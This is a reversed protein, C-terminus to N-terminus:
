QRDFFTKLFNQFFKYSDFVNHCVNKRGQIKETFNITEFNFFMKSFTKVYFIRYRQSFDDYCNKELLM